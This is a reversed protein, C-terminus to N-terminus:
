PKWERGVWVEKSLGDDEDSRLCDLNYNGISNLRLTFPWSASSKTEQLGIPPFQRGERGEAVIGSIAWGCLTTDPWWRVTLVLM